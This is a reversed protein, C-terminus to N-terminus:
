SLQITNKKTTGTTHGKSKTFTGICPIDEAKQKTPGLIGNFDAPSYYWTHSWLDLTQTQLTCLYLRHIKHRAALLFPLLGLTPLPIPMSTPMSMPPCMSPPALHGVFQHAVTLPSLSYFKQTNPQHLTRYLPCLQLLNTLTIQQVSKCYSHCVNGDTATCLALLYNVLDWPAGMQDQPGRPGGENLHTIYDNLFTPYIPQTNKLYSSLLPSLCHNWVNIHISFM